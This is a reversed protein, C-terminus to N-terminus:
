EPYQFLRLNKAYWSALNLWYAPRCFVKPKKLADSKKRREGGLEVLRGPPLFDSEVVINLAPWPSATGNGVFVGGAWCVRFLHPTIRESSSQVSPVLPV